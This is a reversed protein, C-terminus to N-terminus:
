TETPIFCFCIGSLIFLLYWWGYTSFLAYRLIGPFWTIAHFVYTDMALITYVTLLMVGIIVLLLSHKHIHHSLMSYTLFTIGYSLLLCKFMHICPMTTDLMNLILSLVIMLASGYSIKKM